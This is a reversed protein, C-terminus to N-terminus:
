RFSKILINIIQPDLNLINGIEDDTVFEVSKEMKDAQQQVLKLNLANEFIISEKPITIEINLDSINKIKNIVDIVNDTQQIELKIM